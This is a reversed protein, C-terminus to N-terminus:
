PPQVDHNWQIRFFTGIAPEGPPRAADEELTLVSRETRLDRFKRTRREPPPDRCVGEELPQAVEGREDRGERDANEEHEPAHGDEAQELGPTEVGDRDTHVRSDRRVVRDSHRGRAERLRLVGIRASDRTSDEWGLDVSGEGAPISRRRM